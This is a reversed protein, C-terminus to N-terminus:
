PLDVLKKNNDLKRKNLILYTLYKIAIQHIHKMIKKVENRNMKLNELAQKYTTDHVGVIITM